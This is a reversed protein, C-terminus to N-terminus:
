LNRALFVVFANRRENNYVIFLLSFVDINCEEMTKSYCNFLLSANNQIWALNYSKKQQITRTRNKRAFAQNGRSLRTKRERFNQNETVLWLGSFPMNSVFHRFAKFGALLLM